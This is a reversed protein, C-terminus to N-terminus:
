RSLKITLPTVEPAASRQPKRGEHLRRHAPCRSPKDCEAFTHTVGKGKKHRMSTTNDMDSLLEFDGETVPTFLRPM